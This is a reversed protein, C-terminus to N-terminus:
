IWRMFIAIMIINGGFGCLILYWEFAEKFNKWAKKFM